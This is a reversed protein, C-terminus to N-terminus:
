QGNQVEKHVAGNKQDQEILRLTEVITRKFMSYIAQVDSQHAQYEQWSFIGARVLANNVEKKLWEWDINDVVQPGAPIGYKAMTDPDGDKILVCRLYGNQDEYVVRKM